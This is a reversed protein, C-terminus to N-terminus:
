ESDGEGSIDISHLEWEGDENKMMYYYMDHHIVRVDAQPVHRASEFNGQLDLIHIEQKDDIEEYTYVYIKEDTVTFDRFAPYQERDEIVVFDKYRTYSALASIEETRKKRYEDNLLVPAYEKEIEYLKKGDCDYVELFYGKSSDGVFIKDGFVRFGYCDSVMDM